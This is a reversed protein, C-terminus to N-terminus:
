SRSVTGSPATTTNSPLSYGSPVCLMLWLPYLELLARFEDLIGFFLWPVGLVALGAWMMRRWMLPKSRWGWAPLAIAVGLIVLFRLHGWGFDTFMTMLFPLNRQMFWFELASGANERYVWGLWLRMALYLAVMVVAFGWYRGRGAPSLTPTLPDFRQLAHAAQRASVFWWAILVLVTEKHWVALAFLLLYLWVRGELLAWLAASYLLLTAPDYIHVGHRWNLLPYVLGLALVPLGDTLLLRVTGMGEGGLPPSPKKSVGEGKQLSPYVFRNLMGRWCLLTGFYCAWVSVMLLLHAYAVSRDRGLLLTPLPSPLTAVQRVAWQGWVPPTWRALSGIVDPVLRRVVFPRHATGNLM